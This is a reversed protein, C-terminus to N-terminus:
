APCPPLPQKLLGAGFVFATIGRHPKGEPAPDSRADIVYVGAVSGQTIFQKSGNLVCGGAVKEAITKLAAADSGVKPETLGWAEM